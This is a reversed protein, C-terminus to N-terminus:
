ATERTQAPARPAPVLRGGHRHLIWDKPPATRDRLRSLHWRPDTEIRHAPELSWRSEVGAAGGKGTTVILGLPHCKGIERGAEAALHLRRVPTLPPPEPVECIVLPVVGSRLAEEMCWLINEPRTPHVFIVRGPEMIHFLGDGNIRGPWWAPAIWIVDGSTAAAVEAALTHRARGCIEHVRGLALTMEGALTVTPRDRRPMGGKTILQQPM